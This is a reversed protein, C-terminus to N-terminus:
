KKCITYVFCITFYFDHFVIGKYLILYYFNKSPIMSHLFLEDDDSISVTIEDFSIPNVYLVIDGLLM